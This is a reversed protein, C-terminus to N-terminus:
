ISGTPRPHIEGAVADRALRLAGQVPDTTVVLGAEALGAEHLRRVVADRLPISHSLTGGALVVPLAARHGDQGLQALVSRCMEVLEVAAADLIALSAPEGRVAVESVVRALSAVWVRDSQRAQVCRVLDHPSDGGVAQLIAESLPTTPGRGDLARATAQFARRAIAYGSGEDGLLYGWGGCRATRGQSDCGFAISGTGSISAVGIGSESGAALAAWADHTIRLQRALRQRRAWQELQRRDEDRGAGAIALCAAAM